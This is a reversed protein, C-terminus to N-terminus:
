CCALLIYMCPVHLNRMVHIHMTPPDCCLTAYRAGLLLLQFMAYKNLALWVGMQGAHVYDLKAHDIEDFGLKVHSVLSLYNLRLTTSSCTRSSGSSTGELGTLAM